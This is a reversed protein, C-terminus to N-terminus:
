ESHILSAAPPAYVSKPIGLAQLIRRQLPSLATVEYWIETQTEHRYLTLNDFANLLREATPQDTARNPNGAYLGKLKEGTAALDRRVVLATLTLVRLAIGLLVLLGRIRDEDRLFLPMIALRGGKLRHFGHEPQWEQRYCQVADALSLRQTPTNTVYVRWGALRDFRAIAAPRRRATVTWTHTELTQTPRNPGPRGRGVYRMQRTVREHFSVSLYDAVRYRTLIAQTRQELEARDAAPKPNLAALATQAKKLRERLAARQTQAHATSQLM